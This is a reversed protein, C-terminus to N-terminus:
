NKIHAHLVNFIVYLFYKLKKVVQLLTSFFITKVIKSKKISLTVIFNLSKMFNLM